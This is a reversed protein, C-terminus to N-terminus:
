QMEHPLSLHYIPVCGGQMSETIFMRWQIGQEDTFVIAGRPHLYHEFAINLAVADGPALEDVVLLVERTHFEVDDDLWGMDLSVFMFNSLPADTWLIITSHWDGFQIYTATHVNEFNRTFEAVKAEHEKRPFLEDWGLWIPHIEHINMPPTPQRLPEDVYHSLCFPCIERMSDIRGNIFAFRQVAELPRQAGYQDEIWSGVIAVSTEVMVLDGDSAVLVHSAMRWDLLRPDNMRAVNMYLVGDREAFLAPEESLRADVWAQTYYKLLYERIDNMSKFDSTTLLRLYISDSHVSYWDMESWDVDFRMMAWEWEEWFRGASEIIAGLEEITHKYTQAAEDPMANNEDCASISLILFFLMIAFFLKKM